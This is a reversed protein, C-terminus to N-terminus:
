DIGREGSAGSSVECVKLSLSCARARVSSVAPGANFAQPTSTPMKVGTKGLTTVSDSVGHALRKRNVRLLSSMAHRTRSRPKSPM